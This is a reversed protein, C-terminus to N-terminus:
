TSTRLLGFVHHVGPPGSGCPVFGAGVVAEPSGGGRIVPVAFGAPRRVGGAPGDTLARDPRRSSSRGATTPAATRAPWTRGGRRAASRARFWRSARLRGSPAAPEPTPGRCRGSPSPWTLGGSRRRDHVETGETGGVPRGRTTRARPRRRGRRAQGRVGRV